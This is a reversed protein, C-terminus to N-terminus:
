WSSTLRRRIAAAHQRIKQDQTGTRLARQSVAFAEDLRGNKYLTWALADETFIDHRTRAVTQAIRMSDGLKRDRDALFLALAAETQAAPPGALDEALQYYREAECSNGRASHIDGIRAALDLSPARNLQALFIQLAGEHDARAARVKGIGVMAHPYDPFLFAARRYEREAESLKGLQLYLEGIHATYWAKAELDHSTTADAAMQMIKLAGTLDGQLERAYSVRAYADAGPRLSVMTKFADFADDYEGLELLADGIVGYNWADDPRQDRARRALDRADTFQHRSLHVAALLRLADYQGPNEKLVAGLAEGAAHAARGDNTARAQRLLADALLIAAGPDDPRDRLRLEMEAIRQRLGEASTPPAGPMGIAPAIDVADAIPPVSTGRSTWPTRGTTSPTRGTTPQM